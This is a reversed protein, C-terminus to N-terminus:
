FLFMDIVFWYRLVLYNLKLYRFYSGKTNNSFYSGIMNNLVTVEKSLALVFFLLSINRLM